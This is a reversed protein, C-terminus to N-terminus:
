HHAASHGHEDDEHHEHMGLIGIVTLCIGTFMKLIFKLFGWFASDHYHAIGPIQEYAYLLIVMLVLAGYSKMTEDEEGFVVKSLLSRVAVFMLFFLFCWHVVNMAVSGQEEQGAHEEHEGHEAHEVDESHAVSKEHEEHESDVDSKEHEEHESDVDSKDHEEHESDVDSKDHEEHESHISKESHESHVAHEEHEGHAAHEGCFARGPQLLLVTCFLLFAYLVSSRMIHVPASSLFLFSKKVRKLM